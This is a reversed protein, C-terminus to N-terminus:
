GNGPDGMDLITAIVDHIACRYAMIYPDQSFMKDLNQRKQLWRVFSQGLPSAFLERIDAREKELLTKFEEM